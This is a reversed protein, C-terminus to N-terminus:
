RFINGSNKFNFYSKNKLEKGVIVVQFPRELDSFINILRDALTQNDNYDTVSFHRPLRYVWSFFTFGRVQSNGVLWGCKLLFTLEEKSAMTFSVSAEQELITKRNSTDM